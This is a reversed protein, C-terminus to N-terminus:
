FNKPRPVAHAGYLYGASFCTGADRKNALCDATIERLKKTELTWKDAVRETFAVTFGADFALAPTIKGGVGGGVLVGERNNLAASGISRPLLKFGEETGGLEKAFRAYMPLLDGIQAVRKLATLCSDIADPTFGFGGARAEVVSDPEGGMACVWRQIGSNLADAKAMHDLVAQRSAAIEAPSEQQAWFASVVLLSLPLLRM